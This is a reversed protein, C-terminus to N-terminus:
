KASRLLIPTFLYLLLENRVTKEGQKSNNWSIKHVQKWDLTRQFCEMFVNREVIIITQKWVCVRAYQEILVNFDLIM